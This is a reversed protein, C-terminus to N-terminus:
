CVCVTKINVFSRIGEAALERGLGSDRTGGFPFKIDSRVGGNVFASGVRLHKRALEEAREIDRSFVAGGLGYQTQSAWQFAEAENQAVALTAVPGFLEETFAVTEPRAGVLLTPAFYFGTRKVPQGGVVAKLGQKLGANVQTQLQDRLDRRAMPGMSVPETGPGVTLASIKATLLSELAVANKMTVIFRKASICSQGCNLFRAQVLIEAAAELDADDLVIYPDSGGLELVCSKLHQGALAGVSRGARTSGTLSVGRVRVDAILEAVVPVDVLLLRVVDEPFGIQRFMDEISQACGVTNPSHKFVVTNGAMLTPIAFRFFQWLPFNWPLIGLIVGLPETMVYSKKFGAQVIERPALLTESMDAYYLCCSACKEVEAKAEPLIKGMEKTIQQAFMDINRRLHIALLRFYEGRQQFSLDRWVSFASESKKLIQEVEDARHVPVNAIVDETAPNVVEFSTVTSSM